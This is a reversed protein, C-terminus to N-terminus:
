EREPCPAHVEWVEDQPVRYTCGHDCDGDCDPHPCEHGPYNPYGRCMDPRNEWVTCLRTEVDWWKCTFMPVGRDFGNPIVMEAIFRDDPHPDSGWASALLKSVIGEHTDAEVNAVPFSSCCDGTCAGM